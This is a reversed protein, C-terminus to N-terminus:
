TWFFFNTVALWPLLALALGGSALLWTRSRRLAVDLEPLAYIAALAVGATVREASFIERYSGPALLVVFLAVHALLTWVRLSWRSLVLARVGVVACILAPVVITMLAVVQPGKWPWFAALGSFPILQPAVDSPAGLGGLWLALFAKYAILPTLAIGLLTAAQAVNGRARQRLDVWTPGSVLLAVGYLMAFLATTERTLAALAFAAGAYLARRRGGFDYLYIAVAVLAYALPETLDHQYAIVLGPYLGYLLALWAPRGRRRLWAAVALTGGGVALWNVLVLMYPIVDPRGLALLRAAMPYLIRTYRYAAWDMYSRAHQPDLALHYAFQGDYGIGDPYYHYHPDIRIVPSASSQEIFLRGMFTLDRPDHGGACFALTWAGYLLMVLAAVVGATPLSARCTAARAQRVALSPCAALTAIADM